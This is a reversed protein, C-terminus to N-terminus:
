KIHGVEFSDSNPQNQFQKELYKPHATNHEKYPSSLIIDWSKNTLEDSPIGFLEETNTAMQIQGDKTTYLATM